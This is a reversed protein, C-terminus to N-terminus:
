NRPFLLAEILKPAEETTCEVRHKTGAEEFALLIKGEKGETAILEFGPVSLQLRWKERDLKFTYRKDWTELLTGLVKDLSKM